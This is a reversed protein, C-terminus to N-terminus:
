PIKWTTAPRNQQFDLDIVAASDTDPTSILWSWIQRFVNLQLNRYRLKSFFVLKVIHGKWLTFNKKIQKNFVCYFTDIYIILRCSAATTPNGFIELKRNHNVTKSMGSVGGMINFTIWLVFRYQHFYLSVPFLSFVKHIICCLPPSYLSDLFYFCFLFFNRM